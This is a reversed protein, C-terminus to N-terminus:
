RGAQRRVLLATGFAIILLPWVLDWRLWALANLNIALFFAGLLVLVAGLSRRRRGRLETRSLPLDPWAALAAQRLDDEPLPAGGALPSRHDRPPAMAFLLALYAYLGLGGFSLLFLFALRWLVPDIAFYDALGGCVGFLRRDRTSRHLRRDTSGDM